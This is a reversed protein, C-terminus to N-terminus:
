KEQGCPLPIKTRGTFQATSTLEGVVAVRLTAALAAGRKPDAACDCDRECGRDATFAWANSGGLGDADDTEEM